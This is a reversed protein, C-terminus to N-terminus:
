KSGSGSGASGSGKSMPNDKTTNVKTTQKQELEVKTVQGSIEVTLEGKTNLNTEVSEVWGLEPNYIAIGTIKSPEIKADKIKFPLGSKKDDPKTYKVEGEIKIKDKKNDEGEFTYTYLNEYSGIPGMDFKSKREWKAGKEVTKNPIASFTPDALEKMAEDNLIQNLLDETPKSAQGLKQVLKDKGEIKVVKFDKDLTVTFEAGVLNKLFDSLPNSSGLDSDSNFTIRQTGIDIAMDLGEIKQKFIQDGNEKTETLTWSYTFTQSQKQHIPNGTITLTQDTETKM